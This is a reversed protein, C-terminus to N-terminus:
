HRSHNRGDDNSFNGVWFNDLKEISGLRWAGSVEEGVLSGKLDEAVAEDGEKSCSKSAVLRSERFVISGRVHLGEMLGHLNSLNFEVEEIVDENVSEGRKTDGEGILSGDSGDQVGEGTGDDVGGDLRDALFVRSSKAEVLGGEHLGDDELDDESFDGVGSDGDEEVSSFGWTGGVEEGVLSGEVVEGVAENGEKTSSKSAISRGEGFVSAGHVHLCEM